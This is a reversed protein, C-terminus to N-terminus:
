MLANIFTRMKTATEAHEKEPDSGSVIGAGGFVTAEKGNVIGCRLALVWEGNGEGDMWGILGAYWGRPFDELDAITREAAVQPWGGVAPTPHLAYALEIPSIGEHLTGSIRTGLHWVVPTEFLTPEGPVEVDEAFGRFTEGVARVVLLHERRDKGSALLSEAAQRDESSGALRPASGALPHSSVRRGSSGLVLEPSAGLFVSSTEGAECPLDIRYVFAARNHARLRAHVRDCDIPAPCEVIVRRALVVKELECAGIRRVAEAVWERFAPSDSGQISVPDTVEDRVPLAGQDACDWKVVEPVWLRAPAGREFPVLGVVVPKEAAGRGGQASAFGNRVAEAVAPGNWVDATVRRSVGRCRLRYRPTTLEFSAHM